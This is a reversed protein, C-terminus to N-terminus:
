LKKFISSLNIWNVLDIGNVSFEDKINSILSGSSYINQSINKFKIISKLFDSSYSYSSKIEIASLKGSSEVLLDVENNGQENWFYFELGKKNNFNFKLFESIVFNEFLQGRQYHSELENPNRIGLITCALGTDYFYLKPSKTIRKNFNNFYPKMLFLIYSSELASIWARITKTDRGIIEALSSFNIIQGIRGACLKLLTNFPAIDRINIIKRVDRELYLNVYDTLWDFSNLKDKYIRPYFGNVVYKESSHHEYKTGKLENVSFPLLYFLATRGALSQSLRELMLVNQSGTLIFKGPKQKEDVIVQIYSLIEPINQFEDIIMGKKINNLFSVPDNHFIERTLPLEMNAYQYDPFINKILTTKGSQRPGTVTIVPMKRATKIINDSIERKIFM